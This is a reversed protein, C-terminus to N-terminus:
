RRFKNPREPRPKAMNVKLNRGNFEAGDLASIAAEGASSEDMEVFGFGKSRGTESDKIIVVKKVSGHQEFADQLEQETARYPLNGVYINM